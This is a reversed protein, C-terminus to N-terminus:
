RDPDQRCYEYMALVASTALNFSCPPGYVPIELVDDVLTLTQDDLGLREHGLLLLTQYAFRYEYLSQSNTAQELGVIRYGLQRYKQVVPPLSRHVHVEVYDAADRAIIRDVKVSSLSILECIGLCGAARVIRSLNVHSQVKPVVVMLRRPRTM